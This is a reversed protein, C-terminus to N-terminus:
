GKKFTNRLPPLPGLVIDIVDGDALFRGSFFGVGAPSGTMIVDGARLEHEASIIEILTAISFVMDDSTSSQRTEGNVTLEIPLTTGLADDGTLLGPGLPKFGALMKGATLNGAMLGERQLDRASIDNCATLGAIVSWADDARVNHAAAGIVVAIECEHDVQDRNDAPAVIAAGPDTLSSGADTITYMPADPAPRGIEALHSRYNLGVQVLRTPRVPARLVAEEIPATARVAADACEALRGDVILDHLDVLGDLLQLTDGDRRAVGQDTNFLQV